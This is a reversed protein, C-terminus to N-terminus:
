KFDNKITKNLESAIDKFISSYSSVITQIQAPASGRLKETYEESKGSMGNLFRTSIVREQSMLYDYIKIADKSAFFSNQAYNTKDLFYRLFYPVAKSNKAGKPIAYGEYESMYTYYKDQGPISPAPVIGLSGNSKLSKLYSNSSRATGYNWSVFLGTGDVVGNVNLYDGQLGEQRWTAQQQLATVVKPNSAAESVTKGDFNLVGQLNMYNLYDWCEQPSWPKQGSAEKFDRCMKIFTDMNWKGQEWLKYPDELSYEAITNKNYFLVQPQQFLTLSPNLHIAYAKGNISYADMTKADWVSTDSFDYGTCSIPQMNKMRSLVFHNLYVIDPSNGGAVYAAIETDYSDYSARIWKVKIGTEKTFNDIVKQGGSIESIPNYSLIKITTGRLEAPVNLSSKDEDGKGSSSNGNNNNNQIVVTDDSDSETKTSNNNQEGGEVEEYVSYYSEWEPENNCGAFAFLMVLALVLALIRKFNKM